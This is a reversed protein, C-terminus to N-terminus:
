VKVAGKLNNKGPKYGSAQIDCGICRIIEIVTSIVPVLFLFFLIYDVAGFSQPASGQSISLFLLFITMLLMVILVVSSVIDEAMVWKSCNRSYGGMFEYILSTIVTLLLVYLYDDSKGNSLIYVIVPLIPLMIVFVLHLLGKQWNEFRRERFM